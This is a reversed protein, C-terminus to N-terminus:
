VGPNGISLSTLKGCGPQLSLHNEELYLSFLESMEPSMLGFDIGAAERFLFYVSLDKEIGIGIVAVVVAIAQFPLGRKGGSAVLVGFGALAGVGIAGGWRM